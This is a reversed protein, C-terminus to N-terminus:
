NLTIHKDALLYLYNTTDHWFIANLLEESSLYQVYSKISLNILAQSHVFTVTEDRLAKLDANSNWFNNYTDILVRHADTIEKEKKLWIRSVEVYKYQKTWDNLLLLYIPKIGDSHQMSKAIDRKIDEWIYEYDKLQLNHYDLINTYEVYRDWKIAITERRVSTTENAIYRWNDHVYYLPNYQAM